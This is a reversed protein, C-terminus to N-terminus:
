VSCVCHRSSHACTCVQMDLAYMAWLTYHRDNCVQLVPLRTGEVTQNLYKFLQQVLQARREGTFVQTCLENLRSTHENATSAHDSDMGAANKILNICVHMQARREDRYFNELQVCM